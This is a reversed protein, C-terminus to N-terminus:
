IEVDKHSSGPWVSISAALKFTGMIELSQGEPGLSNKLEFLEKTYLDPLM